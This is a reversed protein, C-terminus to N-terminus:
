PTPDDLARLVDVFSRDYLGFGTFHEIQDVTSMRRILKYYCTRAFRMLKNERSKTKVACVIRYGEEWKAVLRPIMEVPDQFDACMSITCDGTTACIGHYPSNFQGFNRANFIARVRRNKRCLQLLKERTGDRSANDIFLIDYDYQPLSREFEAAIAEYLPEVNEVENYTPIMVSIRKRVNEM